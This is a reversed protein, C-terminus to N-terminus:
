RRLLNRRDIAGPENGERARLLDNLSFRMVRVQEALFEQDRRMALAARWYMDGERATAPEGAFTRTLSMVGIRSSRKRDKLSAGPIM